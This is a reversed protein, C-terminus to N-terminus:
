PAAGVPQAPAPLDGGPHEPPRPQAKEAARGDLRETSYRVVAVALFAAVLSLGDGVLYIINGTRWEEPTDAQAYSNGAFRLVVDGILWLAWWSLLLWRPQASEQDRGGARWVDNVIQKPRWLNLFPVFWAGIAWGHGYRREPPAVLDVNRYAAYLWRIFTAAAFIWIAIAFPMLAGNREDIANLEADGVPDGALIRDITRQEAFGFGISVACLLAMLGLAITALRVRGALPIYNAPM